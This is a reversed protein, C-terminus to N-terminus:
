TRRARLLYWILFFAAATIIIVGTFPALLLSILGLVFMLGSLVPQDKRGISGVGTWPASQMGRAVPVM